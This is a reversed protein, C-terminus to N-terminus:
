GDIAGESRELHYTIPTLKGSIVIVELRSDLVKHFIYNKMM